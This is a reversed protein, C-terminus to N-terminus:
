ARQERMLKAFAVLDICRRGGVKRFADAMGNEARNRYMWELADQTAPLLIGVAQLHEVKLPAITAPPFLKQREVKQCRKTTQCTCEGGFAKCYPDKRPSPPPDMALLATQGDDLLAMDTNCIDCVPVVAERLSVRSPCSPCRYAHMM